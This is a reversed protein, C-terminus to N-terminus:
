PSVSVPPPVCILREDNEFVVPKIVKEITATQSYAETWTHTSPDYIWISTSTIVVERQKGSTDKFDFVGRIPKGGFSYYPDYKEYGPRVVRSKGDKHVKWNVSKIVNNQPAEGPPDRENLTGGLDWFPFRQYRGRNM